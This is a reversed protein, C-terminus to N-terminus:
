GSGTDVPDNWYLVIKKASLKYEATLNIPAQPPKKDINKIEITEVERRGDKDVVAVSYIGNEEVTFDNGTIVTGNKLIDKTDCVGKKWKAEQISTSSTVTITVSDKTWVTEEPNQTLTLTMADGAKTTTVSKTEGASKNGSKDIATVTVTYETDTDLGNVIMNDTQGAKVVMYVSRVATGDAKKAVYIHVQNLDADSPNKWRLSIKDSGPQVLLDTVKGPATTDQGPTVNPNCGSAIVVAALAMLMAARKFFYKVM